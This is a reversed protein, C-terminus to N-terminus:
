IELNNKLWPLIELLETMAKEKVSEFGARLDVGNLQNSSEFMLERYLKRYKARSRTSTYMREFKEPCAVILSIASIENNYKNQQVKNDPNKPEPILRILRALQDTNERVLGSKEFPNFSDWNKLNKLVKDPDSLRVEVRHWFHDKMQGELKNDKRERNKDYINIQVNNGNKGVLWGTSTNEISFASARRNPVGDIWKYGTILDQYYDMAIDTRSLELNYAFGLVKEIVNMLQPNTRRYKPNFELEIRIYKGVTSAVQKRRRLQEYCAKVYEMSHSGFKKIIDFLDELDEDEKKLEEGTAKENVPVLRLFVTGHPAKTVLDEGGFIECWMQGDRERPRDRMINYDHLEMLYDMLDEIKLPSVRGLIRVKDISVVAPMVNKEM